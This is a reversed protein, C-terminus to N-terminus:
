KLVSRISNSGRNPLDINQMKQYSLTLDYVLKRVVGLGRDVAPLHRVVQFYLQSVIIYVARMVLQSWIPVSKLPSLTTTCM